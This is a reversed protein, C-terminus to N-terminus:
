AVADNVVIRLKGIEAQSQVTRQTIQPGDSTWAGFEVVLTTEDDSRPALKRELLASLRRDHTSIVLQRDRRIHRCLDAFGLANIDDMSQIPDDLFIFPLVASGAAWGLALFYSLATVNAQASSFHLVPDATVQAAEDLALAQTMGRGYYVDLDVNFDTFTPHPSLRRYIDRITPVLQRFRQEAVGAIALTANKRLAKAEEAKASASGAKAQATELAQSAERVLSQARMLAADGPGVRLVATLEGAASWVLRLADRARLMAATDGARVADLETLTVPGDDQCAFESASTAWAAESRQLQLFAEYAALLPRLTAKTHSLNQSTIKVTERAKAATNELQVLGAEPQETLRAELRDRVDAANIAQDCVPCTPGLVDLAHVALAAVRTSRESALKLALAAADSAEQAKAVAQEGEAEEARLRSVDEVPVRPLAVKDAKLAADKELLESLASGLAGASQQLLAAGTSETPMSRVAAIASVSSLRKEIAQRAATVNSDLRQERELERLENSREAHLQQAQQFALVAHKAADSLRAEREKASAEFGAIENLGMLGTLTSYRDRAPAQLVNRTDDQELLASSMLVSRMDLGSAGTLLADLKEEAIAGRVGGLEDVWSLMSGDRTQERTLTIRSDTFELEAAVVAPRGGGYLNAVYEDTRRARFPHLRNLSGLLLWQIADFLSTKGAGNAGSLIVASATLDIRQRRQFGRFQEIEIWRFAAQESM